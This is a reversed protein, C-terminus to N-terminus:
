QSPRINAVEANTATDIVSLSNDAQNVVYVRGAGPNVAVSVPTKGVRLEAV